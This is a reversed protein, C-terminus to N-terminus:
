SLMINSVFLNYMSMGIKHYSLDQVKEKCDNIALIRFVILSIIISLGYKLYVEKQKDQRNELNLSLKTYLDSHIICHILFKIRIWHSIQQYKMMKVYQKSDITTKIIKNRQHINLLASALLFQLFM